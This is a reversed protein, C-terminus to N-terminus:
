PHGSRRARRGDSGHARLFLDVSAEVHAAIQKPTPAPRLGLTARFHPMGKWLSQLQEAALEPDVVRYHGLASARRLFDSIHAASREPGAQFFLEAMKPHRAAEGVMVRHLRVVEPDLLLAVFNHGIRCLGARPSLALLADYSEPRNYADCRARVIEQFLRDKDGFHSYLTLKSVGAARAIADMSAGQFGRALFIRTAARAIARRKDPDPPRGRRARQQRLEASSM